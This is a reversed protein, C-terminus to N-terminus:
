TRADAEKGRSRDPPPTEGEERGSRISRFVPMAAWQVVVQTGFGVALAALIDSTTGWTSDYQPVVYVLTAGIAFVLTLLWDIMMLRQLAKEFRDGEPQMSRRTEELAQETDGSGLELGPPEETLNLAEIFQDKTAATPHTFLDLNPVVEKARITMQSLETVLDTMEASTRKSPLPDPAVFPTLDIQNLHSKAAESLQSSGEANAIKTWAELVLLHWLYQERCLKALKFGEELDAVQNRRVTDLVRETDKALETTSWNVGKRPPVDRRTSLEHLERVPQLVLLWCGIKEIAEDVKPELAELEEKSRAWKLEAYLGAIGDVQSVASWRQELWGRPGMTLSMDWLLERTRRDADYQEEVHEIANKLRLRLAARMRANASFAPLFGGLISSVLVLLIALYVSRRSHLVIDLSPPSPGDDLQLKGKYEGPSADGVALTAAVQGSGLPRLKELTLRVRNGEDNGLLAKRSFPPEQEALEEAGAGVLMVEADGELDGGTLQLTLDEPQFAVDELSRAEVGVPLVTSLVAAKKRGKKEPALRLEFFLSGALWSPPKAAPLTFQLQLPLVQGARMRPGPDRYKRSPEVPGTAPVALADYQSGGARLYRVALVGGREAGDTVVVTLHGHRAGSRDALPEVAITLDGGDPAKVELSPDGAASAAPQLGAALVLM